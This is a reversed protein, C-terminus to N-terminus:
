SMLVFFSCIKRRSGGCIISGATWSGNASFAELFATMTRHRIEAERKGSETYMLGKLRLLKEFMHNVATEENKSKSQYTERSLNERPFMEPDFFRGSGAVANFVITRVIGVAGMADLMDADQVIHGNRDLKQMGSLYKSYGLNSVIELVAAATKGDAGSEDLIRRANTLKAANEPGFVKYDDCDHLLAALAVIDEDGNETRCLRLATKCVRVSHEWDHMSKENGLLERVAAAVKERVSM